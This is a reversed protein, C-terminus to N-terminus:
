LDHRRGGKGAEYGECFADFIANVRTAYEGCFREYLEVSPSRIRLMRKIYAIIRSKM